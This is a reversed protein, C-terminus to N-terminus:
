PEFVLFIFVALVVLHILGFLVNTRGTGFTLMSIVSTLWLIVALAPSIWASRPM